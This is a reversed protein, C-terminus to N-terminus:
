PSPTQSPRLIRGSSRTSFASYRSGVGAGSDPFWGVPRVNGIKAVGLGLKKCIRPHQPASVRFVRRSCRLTLGDSRRKKQLYKEIKIEPLLAGAWRLGISKKRKPNYRASAQLSTQQAIANPVKYGSNTDDVPIDISSEFNTDAITCRVKIEYLMFLDDECEFLTGLKWM